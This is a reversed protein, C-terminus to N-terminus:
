DDNGTAGDSCLNDITVEQWEFACPKSLCIKQIENGPITRIGGAIPGLPETDFSYCGQARAETVTAIAMVVFAVCIMGGTKKM